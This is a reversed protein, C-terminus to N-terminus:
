RHQDSDFDADRGYPLRGAAAYLVTNPKFGTLTAENTDYLTSNIQQIATKLVDDDMTIQSNTSGRSLM